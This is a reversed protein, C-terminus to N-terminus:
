PSVGSIGLDNSSDAGRLSLVGLHRKQSDNQFFICTSPIYLILAEPRRDVNMVGPVVLAILSDHPRSRQESRSFPAFKVILDAGDEGTPMLKLKFILRQGPSVISCSDAHLVTLHLNLENLSRSDYTHSATADDISIIKCDPM